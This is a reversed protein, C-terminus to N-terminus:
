TLAERVAEEYIANREFTDLEDSLV